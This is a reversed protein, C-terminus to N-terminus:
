AAAAHVPLRWDLRWALCLRIYQGPQQRDCCYTAQLKELGGPWDGPQARVELVAQQLALGMVEGRLRSCM